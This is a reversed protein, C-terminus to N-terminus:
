MAKLSLPPFHAGKWFEEARCRGRKRRRRRGGQVRLLVGAAAQHEQGGGRARRRLLLRGVRHHQRRAGGCCLDRVEVADEEGLTLLRRPQPQGRRPLHAAVAAVEGAEVVLPAHRVPHQLHYVVVAQAAAVVARGRPRPLVAAEVLVAGHRGGEADPRRAVRRLAAEAAAVEGGRLEVLARLVLHVRGEVHARVDHRLVHRHVRHVPRPELAERAFQALLHRGVASPEEHRRPGGKHRPAQRERTVGAAHPPLRGDRVAAPEDHLVLQRLLILLVDGHRGVEILEDDRLLLPPAARRVVRGGGEEHRVLRDRRLLRERAILHRHLRQLGDRPQLEEGRQARRRQRVEAARVLALGLRGREKLLEPLDSLEARCVAHRLQPLHPLPQGGVPRQVGRDLLFKRALRRLEHCRRHLGNVGNSSRGTRPGYRHAHMIMVRANTKWLSSPSFFFFHSFLYHQENKLQLERKRYKREGRRKGTGTNVSERRIKM